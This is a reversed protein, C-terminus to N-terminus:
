EIIKPEFYGLIRYDEMNEFTQYRDVMFYKFKSKRLINPFM